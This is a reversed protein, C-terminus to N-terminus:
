LHLHVPISQMFSDALTYLFTHIGYITYIYIYIYSMYIYGVEEPCTRAMGTAPPVMFQINFM